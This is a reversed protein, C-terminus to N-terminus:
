SQDVEIGFGVIILFWGVAVFGAAVLAAQISIFNIIFIINQLGGFTGQVSFLLSKLTHSGRVFM